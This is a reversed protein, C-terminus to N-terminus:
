KDKLPLFLEREDFFFETGNSWRDMITTRDGITVVWMKIIHKNDLKITINCIGDYQYTGTQTVLPKDYGDISEVRCKKDPYFYFSENPPDMYRHWGGVISFPVRNLKYEIIIELFASFAFGTIDGSTKVKFWQGYEGSAKTFKGTEAVLLLKEDKVASGIVNGKIDPADRILLRNATVRYYVKQEASKIERTSAYVSAAATILTLMVMITTTRKCM